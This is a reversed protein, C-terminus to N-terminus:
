FIKSKICKLIHGTAGGNAPTLATQISTDTQSLCEANQERIDIPTAQMEELVSTQGSPHSYITTGKM